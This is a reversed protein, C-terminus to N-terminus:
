LLVNHMQVRAQLTKEKKRSNLTQEFPFRTRLGPDEGGGGQIRRQTKTYMKSFAPRRSSNLYKNHLLRHYRSDVRHYRSDIM